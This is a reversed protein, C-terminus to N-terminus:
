CDFIEKEPQRFDTPMLASVKLFHLSITLFPKTFQEYVRWCFFCNGLM